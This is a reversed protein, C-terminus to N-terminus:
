VKHLDDDDGDSTISMAPLLEYVQHSIVPLLREEHLNRSEEHKEEADCLFPQRTKM